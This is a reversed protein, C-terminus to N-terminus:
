EKCEDIIIEMEEIFADVDDKTPHYRIFELADSWKPEGLEAALGLIYGVLENTLAGGWTSPMVKVTNM